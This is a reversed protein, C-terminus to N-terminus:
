QGAEQLASQGVSSLDGSGAEPIVRYDFTDGAVTFDGVITPEGSTSQTIRGAMTEGNEGALSIQDVDVDGKLWIEVDSGNCLYAKARAGRISVAVGIEGSSDLGSFRANKPPPPPVSSEDPDATPVSSATPIAATGGSDPAETDPAAPRSDGSVAASVPDTEAETVVNATFLGAVFAAAAALTVLPTNIKM